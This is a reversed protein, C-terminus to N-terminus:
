FGKPIYSSNRLYTRENLIEVSKASSEPIGSDDGKMGSDDGKMLSKALFRVAAAVSGMTLCDEKAGQQQLSAARLGTSGVAQAGV